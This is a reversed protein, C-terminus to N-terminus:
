VSVCKNSVKYHKRMWKKVSDPVGYISVTKVKGTEFDVFTIHNRSFKKKQRKNM